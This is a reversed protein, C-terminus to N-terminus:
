IKICIHMCEIYKKFISNSEDSKEPTIKIKKIKSTDPTRGGYESYTHTEKCVRKKRWLLKYKFLLHRYAASFYFRYKERQMVSHLPEIIHHSANNYKRQNHKYKLYPIEQTIRFIVRLIVKKILNRFQKLKTQNEQIKCM